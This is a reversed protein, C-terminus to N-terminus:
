ACPRVEPTLRVTQGHIEARGAAVLRAIPGAGIRKTGFRWGGPRREIAGKRLLVLVRFDIPQLKM